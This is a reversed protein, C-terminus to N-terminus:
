QLPYRPATGSPFDKRQTDMPSGSSNRKQEVNDSCKYIVNSGPIYYSCRPTGTKSQLVHLLISAINQHIFDYMYLSQHQEECLDKYRSCMTNELIHKCYGSETEWLRKRENIKSYFSQFGAIDKTYTYNMPAGVWIAANCIVILLDNCFSLSNLQM